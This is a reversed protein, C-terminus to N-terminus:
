NLAQYLALAKFVAETRPHSNELFGLYVPSITIHLTRRAAGSNSLGFM